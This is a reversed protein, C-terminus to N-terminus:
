SRRLGLASIFFSAFATQVGLTLLVVAPIAERMTVRPDLAGFAAQRWGIFAAGLLWLGGITLAAATMLGRELTLGRMLTEVRREPPVLGFAVALIRTSIGFIVLQYGLIAVFGTVLLTHIDLVAPGLRWPGRILRGGVLTAFVLSLLGPVIFLWMPSYLLLFRLHRWGDRWSRLHPPRSRGDRHLVVPVEAIDMARISAQVVM